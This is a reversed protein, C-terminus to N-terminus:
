YYSLNTHALGDYLDRCREFWFFIPDTHELIGFKSIACAWMFPGFAIYDAYRVNEGGLFPQSRITMRLPHLLRRFAHVGEERNTQASELSCGLREERSERFYDKSEEDLCQYTDAAIIPFLAPQVVSVVWSDIFRALSYGADGGFLSERDSFTKELYLAIKWSDNIELDNIKVTPVTKYGGGTVFPIECLRTPRSAFQVKKHALAM